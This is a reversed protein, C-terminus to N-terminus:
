LTGKIRLKLIKLLVHLLIQLNLKSVGTNRKQFKIPIEIMTCGAKYCRFLIEEVTEPGSASLTHPNLKKLASSSFARFGSTSDKVPTGLLFSIFRNSLISVTKRILNRECDKGNETYRSGIVVDTDKIGSILHPIIAPDHSFDADMEVLVDYNNNLAYSFGDRGALGRGRPPNREILFLCKFENQLNKIIQATGDPSQDDVVLIHYAPNINFITRVLSKINGAENYTPIFVLIKM